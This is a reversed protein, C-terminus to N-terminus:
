MKSVYNKGWFYLLLLGGAIWVVLGIIIVSPVNLVKFISGLVIWLFAIVSLALLSWEFRRENM